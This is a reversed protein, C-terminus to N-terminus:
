QSYSHETFGFSRLWKLIPWKREWKIVPWFHNQIERDLLSNGIHKELTSGSHSNEMWTRPTVCARQQHSTCRLLIWPATVLRHTHTHVWAPAWINLTRKVKEWLAPKGRPEPMSARNLQNCALPYLWVSLYPSRSRQTILYHKQSLCKVASIWGKWIQSNLFM